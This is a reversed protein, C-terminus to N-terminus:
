AVLFRSGMVGRGHLGAGDHAEFTAGEELLGRGQHFGEDVLEVRVVDGIAHSFTRIARRKRPLIADTFVADDRDIRIIARPARLFFYFVLQLKSTVGGQSSLFDKALDDHFSRRFEGLRHEFVGGIRTEIVLYTRSFVYTIVHNAHVKALHM